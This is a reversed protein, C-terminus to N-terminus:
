WFSLQIDLTDAAARFVEAPTDFPGVDIPTTRYSRDDFVTTASAALPSGSPDLVVRVVHQDIQMTVGKQHRRPMGGFRSRDESREPSRGM